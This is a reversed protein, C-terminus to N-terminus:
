RKELENGAYLLTEGNSARCTFWGSEAGRDFEISEVVLLQGRYPGIKPVVSDGEEIM